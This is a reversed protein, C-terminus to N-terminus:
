GRSPPSGTVKRVLSRRRRAEKPDAVLPRLLEVRDGDHLPTAATARRGFVAFSLPPTTLPLTAAIGSERVADDVTAGEELRVTIRTAGEATAYCVEVEM